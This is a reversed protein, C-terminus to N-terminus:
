PLRRKKKVVRPKNSEVINRRANAMADLAQASQYDLDGGLRQRAIANMFRQQQRDANEARAADKLQEMLTYVKARRGAQIGGIESNIDSRRELGSARGEGALLGMMQNFSGTNAASAARANEGGSQVLSAMRARDSENGANFDGQIGLRDTESQTEQQGKGYESNVSNLLNAYRNAIATDSAAGTQRISTAAARNSAGLDAYSKRIVGRENRLERLAPEIEAQVTFGARRAQANKTAFGKRIRGEDNRRTRAYRKLTATDGPAGFWEMNLNRLKNFEKRQVGTLKKPKPKRRKNAM